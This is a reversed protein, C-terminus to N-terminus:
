MSLHNWKGGWRDLAATKSQSAPQKRCTYIAHSCGSGKKFGFQNDGTSSLSQFKDIFTYYEHNL